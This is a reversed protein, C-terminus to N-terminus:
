RMQSVVWFSWFLCAMGLADAGGFAVYSFEMDVRTRVLCAIYLYGRKEGDVKEKKDCVGDVSYWFHLDVEEHDAERRWFRIMDSYHSLSEEAREWFYWHLRSHRGRVRDIDEVGNEFAVSTWRMNKM